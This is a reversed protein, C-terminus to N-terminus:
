RTSPLRRGISERTWDSAARQAASKAAAIIEARHEDMAPQLSRRPPATDTGHEIYSAIPSTNTLNLAFRPWDAVVEFVFSDRYAGTRLNPDTESVQGYFGLREKEAVTSAALPDWEALEQGVRAQATAVLRPGIEELAARVAQNIADQLTEAM